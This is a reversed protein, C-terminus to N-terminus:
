NHQADSGEKGVGHKDLIDLVDAILRYNLIEHPGSLKTEVQKRFPWMYYYAPGTFNRVVRDHYEKSSGFIKGHAALSMQYGQVELETRWPAPLPLLFIPVLAAIVWSGLFLALILFLPALVQPFLYLIGMLPGLRKYQQIHVLEHSLVRWARSYDQSVFKRSPFYVTNGIVTTYQAMFGRNFFLIKGLVKMLASEDKYRVQFRKYRDKAYSYLELYIERQKIFDM